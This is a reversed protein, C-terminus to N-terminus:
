AGSRGLMRALREVGERLDELSRTYAFRVHREPANSGFDLGPTIAVGAEELVRFAFQGSDESFRECGAYIYFAGEPVLPIRFGLGRLAPVMYDRRRRFEERREELVALTEPRFAALAAYQAPASPCIFANQALKVIDRVYSEPAVIWGLRWGTMCFYKSFSNVVFVDDAFDLVTSPRGDYVLGQYIEDVVVFGGSLRVSEVIARLEDRPISTGTPNSPSALLVGRTAKGWNSRVDAATLQYRRSEDVPIARPRGEFLRVFHRNCPYCPDPMLVEDGPDVLAGLTLLFAGSAGATIVIRSPPVLAGLQERYHDSIAQRLEPIGVSDTYGLRRTNIAEVAAAAVLPPAPFDPQGIEMHVIRRGAAELEHARNQVDMVHFPEIEAMRAAVAPKADRKM